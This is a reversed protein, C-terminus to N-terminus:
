EQATAPMAAMQDMMSSVTDPEDATLRQPVVVAEPVAVTADGRDKMQKRRDYQEPTVLGMELAMDWDYIAPCNPCKIPNTPLMTGCVKCNRREHPKVDPNLAAWEPLPNLLGQEKLYHAYRIRQVNVARAGWRQYDANTQAVQQRKYALSKDLAMKAHEATVEGQVAIIGFHGFQGEIDNAVQFSPVPIMARPVTPNMRQGTEDRDMQGTGHLPSHADVVTLVVVTSKVGPALEYERKEAYKHLYPKDLLVGAYSTIPFQCMEFVEPGAKTSPILYRGPHVGALQINLADPDDWASVLKSTRIDIQLAM